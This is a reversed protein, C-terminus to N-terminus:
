YVTVAILDFKHLWCDYLRASSELVDGDSPIAMQLSLCSFWSCRFFINVHSFGCADVKVNYPQICFTKWGCHFEEHWRQGRTVNQWMRSEMILQM